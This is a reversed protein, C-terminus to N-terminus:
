LIKNILNFKHNILNILENLKDENQIETMNIGNNKTKCTTPLIDKVVDSIEYLSERNLKKFEKSNIDLESVIENNYTAYATENVINNLEDLSKIENTDIKNIIVTLNADTLEDMNIIKLKNGTITELKDM